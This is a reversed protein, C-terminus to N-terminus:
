ECWLRDPRLYLSTLASEAAKREEGVASEPEERVRSACTFASPSSEEQGRGQRCTGADRIRVVFRPFLALPDHPGGTGSSITRLILFRMWSPRCTLVFAEAPTFILGFRRYGLVSAAPSIKPLKGEKKQPRPQYGPLTLLHKRLADQKEIFREDSTSGYQRGFEDRDLPNPLGKAPLLYDGIRFSTALEGLMAPSADLQTTFANGALGAALEDFRFHDGGQVLLLEEQVDAASVTPEEVLLQVAASLLFNRLLSPRGQMAPEGLVRLRRGRQDETEIKNWELGSLPLARLMSERDLAITLGLIYAAAADEAPLRKCEAAALRFYRETLEDGSRSKVDRKADSAIAAVIAHAGELVGDPLSRVKWPEPPTAGLLRVYFPAAPDDPLARSLSAFIDLLRRRTPASLEALGRVPRRALEEAVLNMVLTNVPDFGLRFSRRNVRGDGLKPRMVSDGEPSHCSGLFHGLEHVLVELKEAETRLNKYERLLIHTHLPGPTCGLTKDDSKEARLGTFGIALRAKGPSAKDRFDRLLESMKLLSADSEWTGADVVEMRVRCCKELVDSAEEIRKRLRKEWVLQTTREAQDVFIKVPVKLLLGDRGREVRSREAPRGGPQDNAATQPKRWSGSFGVQSLRLSAGDGVFYYIQNLRTQCRHKTGGASFAIEAGGKLPLTLIEGKPLTYPISKGDASAISFRVEQGTRNTLVLVAARVSPEWSLFLTLAVLTLRSKM